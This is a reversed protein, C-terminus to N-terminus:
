IEYTEIGASIVASGVILRGYGLPVPVGQASTNTPGTFTYSQVNGNKREPLPSSLLTSVGGIILALGMSGLFPTLGQAGPIFNTAVAAAILVTGVIIRFWPSGGAGAIVPVLRIIENKGSPNHIENVHGVSSGGVFVRFRINEKDAGCMFKEFGPFNARLARIAEAANAVAFKHYKGFRKGLEGYLVITRM